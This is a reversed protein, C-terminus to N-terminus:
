GGPGAVGARGGGGGGWSVCGGPLSSPPTPCSQMTGFGRADPQAGLALATMGMEAAVQTYSNHTVLGRYSMNPQYNGMGIGLLPHRLAVYISRFLEGRRADASGSTDLGPMLISLLRDSYGTPALLLMTALTGVLLLTIEARSRRGLKIAFFVAIVLVGIFAGRSYSLLIGFVMVAACFAHIGKAIPKRSGFFLAISIPLITVLHLAMDNTNAFIGTGLGSARYGEVTMLGLRYGNIAQGSLVVASAIAILLLVHLRKETRVVNIIVIFTAVGRIFANSFEIWATSPDIALPISLLGTLVFLFVLNVEATRATLNGELVLQTAAFTVLTLTGLVLALSNTVASPYFESPRTYLVITFLVLAGFSFVHGRKLFTAQSDLRAPPKPATEVIPNVATRAPLPSDPTSREQKRVGGSRSLPQYDEFQRIM